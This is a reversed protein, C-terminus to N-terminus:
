EATVIRESGDENLLGLQKRFAAELKAYEAEAKDDLAAKATAAAKAPGGQGGGQDKGQLAADRAALAAREAEEAQVKKLEDHEKTAKARLPV